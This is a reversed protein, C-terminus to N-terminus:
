VTQIQASRSSFYKKGEKCRLSGNIKGFIEKKGLHREGLKEGKGVLAIMGLNYGGNLNNLKLNEWIKAGSVHQPKLGAAVLIHCRSMQPFQLFHM